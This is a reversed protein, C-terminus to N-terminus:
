RATATPTTVTVAPAATPPLPPMKEKTFRPLMEDRNAVHWVAAAIVTVAKKADDPVIREYTDLNTHWTASQYEIPDQQMGIGALGAHNFNTSDTGGTARSTTPMAGAVGLDEFPALAARLISAAEPPGFVSAGRVRGTGSDINFYCDLGGFEPKPDEFTGFHQKV